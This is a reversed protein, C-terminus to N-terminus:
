NVSLGRFKEPKGFLDGDEDGEEWRAPARSWASAAPNGAWRSGAGSSSHRKVERGGGPGWWGRAPVMEGQWVAGRVEGGRIGMGALKRATPIVDGLGRESGRAACLAEAVEGGGRSASKDRAVGDLGSGRAGCRRGDTPVRRRPWNIRRRSGFGDGLRREYEDGM